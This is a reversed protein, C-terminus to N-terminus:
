PLRPSIERLTAVVEQLRTAVEEALESLEIDRMLDRPDAVAVRTSSGVGELVVNCPLALSAAPDILLAEYAFGPNCAGLIKLPARDVGLKAKFAAAMDIETLVGFGHEALAARVALEADEVSLDLVVDFSTMSSVRDGHRPRRKAPLCSGVVHRAFGCTEM